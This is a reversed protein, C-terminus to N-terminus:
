IAFEAISQTSDIIIRINIIYMYNCNYDAHYLKSRIVSFVKRNNLADFNFLKVTCFNFSVLYM